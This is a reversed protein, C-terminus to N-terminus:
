APLKYGPPACYWITLAAQQRIDPVKSNLLDKNLNPIIKEDGTRGLYTMAAQKQEDTGNDLAGLLLDLANESTPNGLNQQSAYKQLWSSLHAPPHHKPLYPSGTTHIEFAQQALDRVVWENEDIQMKELIDIAWQESILSLGHVVAYRVLLDDMSIGERLAPHGESRNQALSEAAARRLLEIGHLLGEAVAELSRPSGINGLAYCAATSSPFSDNLQRILLPVASLDQILGAGVAAARRTDLNESKLLHHFINKINSNNSKSLSIILRLKIPYYPNTHIERTIYKLLTLEHPINNEANALWLSARHIWTKFLSPDDLLQKLHPQINNFTSFYRMAEYMMSWDPQGLVGQIVQPGSRALGKSALFGGITPYAFHYEDTTSKQLINLDLSTQIVANLSATKDDPLNSSSASIINSLWRNVDRLSFSSKHQELAHLAIIELTQLTENIEANFLRNLYGDIAHAPKPGTLDGAFAAISKLTFELPTLFRGSVVLMSNRIDAGESVQNQDTGLITPWIQALKNIYTYKESNGWPSISILELPAKVLNGLCIPSATVVVQLTTISRCLANIFNAIRNTDAP